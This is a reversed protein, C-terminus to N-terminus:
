RRLLRDLLGSNNDLKKKFEEVQDSIKKVADIAPDLKEKEEMLTKEMRDIADLGQAVAYVGYIGAAILVASATSILVDRITALM